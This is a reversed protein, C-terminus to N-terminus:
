QRSLGGMSMLIFNSPGQRLPGLPYPSHHPANLLYSEDRRWLDYKKKYKFAYLAFQQSIGPSFSAYWIANQLNKRICPNNWEAKDCTFVFRFNLFAIFSFRSPAPGSSSTGNTSCVKLQSMIADDEDYLQPSPFVVPLM